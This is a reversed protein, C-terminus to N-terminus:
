QHYVVRTELNIKLDVLTYITINFITINMGAHMGVTRSLVVKSLQHKENCRVCPKLLLCCTDISSIVRHRLCIFNIKSHFFYKVLYSHKSIFFFRSSFCLFSTLSVKVLSSISFIESTDRIYKTHFICEYRHLLFYIM